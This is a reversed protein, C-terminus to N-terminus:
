EGDETCSECIWRDDNREGMESQEHWWMCCECEFVLADLAACFEADNDMGEMDNRELVTQLSDCTGRLEEAVEEVAKM